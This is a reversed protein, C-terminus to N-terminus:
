QSWVMVYSMIRFNTAHKIQGLTEEFNKPVFTTHTLCSFTMYCEIKKTRSAGTIKGNDLRDSLEFSSRKM